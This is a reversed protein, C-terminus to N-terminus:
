FISVLVLAVVEVVVETAAFVVAVIFKLLKLQPNPANAKPPKPTVDFLPLPAPLEPTEFINEIFEV